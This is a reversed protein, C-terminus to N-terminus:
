GGQNFMNQGYYPQQGPAPPFGTGRRQDHGMQHHQNSIGGGFGPPPAGPALDNQRMEGPAGLMSPGGPAGFPTSGGGVALSGMGATVGAMPSGFGGPAASPLGWTSAGGWSSTRGAPPNSWRGGIAASGIAGPMPKNWPPPARRTDPVVADGGLAASGLVKDPQSPSLRGSGIVGLPAGAGPAVAPPAPAPDFLGPPRSGIPGPAPLGIPQTLPERPAFDDDPPSFLGSPASPVRQGIAGARFPEDPTRTPTASKGLYGMGLTPRSPDAFADYASDPTAGFSRPMASSPSSTSSAASTFLQGNTPAGAFVPSTARFSQRPYSSGSAFGFGPPPAQNPRAAM